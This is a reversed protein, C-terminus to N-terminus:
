YGYLENTFQIITGDTDTLWGEGNRMREMNVEYLKNALKTRLFNLYAQDCTSINNVGLSLLYDDDWLADSNDIMFQHKVPGWHGFYFLMLTSWYTPQSLRNSLHIVKYLTEIRGTQFTENNKIGIKLTVDAEDLSVDKLVIIPAQASTAGAPICLLRKYEDNNFSVYHVDPIANNESTPIQSLEFYREQDVVFGSTRVEVWITDREVGKHYNFSYNILSDASSSYYFGLRGQPDDYLPLDKECSSLVTIASFLLLLGRVIRATKNRFLTNNMDKGKTM